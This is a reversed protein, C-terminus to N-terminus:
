KPILVIADKTRTIHCSTLMNSHHGRLGNHAEEVTYGDAAVMGGVEGTGIGVEEEADEAEEAGVTGIDEVGVVEVDVVIVEAM